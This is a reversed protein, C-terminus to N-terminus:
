IEYDLALPLGKSTAQNVLKGDVWIEGKMEFVGVKGLNKELEAALSIHADDPATLTFERPLLDLVTGGTEPAPQYSMKVLASTGTLKLVVNHTQPAPVVRAGVYFLPREKAEIWELSYRADNELLQGVPLLKAKDEDRLANEDARAILTLDLVRKSSPKWTVTLTKDDKSWVRQPAGSESKSEASPAGLITTVEDINKGLLAPVDFAPGDDSSGGCGCAFVCMVIAWLFISRFPNM